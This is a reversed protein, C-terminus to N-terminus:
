TSYIYIYLVIVVSMHKGATGCSERVHARTPDRLLCKGEVDSTRVEQREDLRGHTMCYEIGQWSDHLMITPDRLSV